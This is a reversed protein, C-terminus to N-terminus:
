KIYKKFCEKMISSFYKLQESTIEFRTSLLEIKNFWIENILYANAKFEEPSSRNNIIKKLEEKNEIASTLLFYTKILFSSIVYINEKITNTYEEKKSRTILKDSNIEKKIYEIKNEIDKIEKGNYKIDFINKWLIIDDDLSSSDIFYYKWFMWNILPLIDKIYKKNIYVWKLGFIDIIKKDIWLKKINEEFEKKDIFDINWVWQIFFINM